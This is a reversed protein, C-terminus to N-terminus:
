RLQDWVPSPPALAAPGTATSRASRYGHPDATPPPPSLSPLPPPLPSCSRFPGAPETVAVLCVAGSQDGGLRGHEDVRRRKVSPPRSRNPPHSGTRPPPSASRGVAGARASETALPAYRPFLGRREPAGRGGGDQGRHGEDSDTGPRSRGTGQLVDACRLCLGPLM